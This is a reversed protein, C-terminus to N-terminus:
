IYIPPSFHRDFHSLKEYKGREKPHQDNRSLATDSLALLSDLAALLDLCL